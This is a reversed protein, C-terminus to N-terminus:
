HATRENDKEREDTERADYQQVSHRVMGCDITMVESALVLIAEDDFLITVKLAGHLEYKDGDNGVWKSLLM